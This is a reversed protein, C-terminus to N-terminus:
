VRAYFEVKIVRDNDNNRGGNEGFLTPIGISNGQASVMIKWHQSSDSHKQSDLSKRLLRIYNSLEPKGFLHLICLSPFSRFIRNRPVPCLFSWSTADLGRVLFIRSACSSPTIHVTSHNYCRIQPSRYFLRFIQLPANVWWINFKQPILQMYQPCCIYWYWDMRHPVLELLLRCWM